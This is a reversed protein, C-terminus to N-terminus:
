HGMKAGGNVVCILAYRARLYVDITQEFDM